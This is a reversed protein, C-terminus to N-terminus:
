KITALFADLVRNFEDPKDMHMWHSTGDIRRHGIGPVAHHLDYPQDSHPTFVALKPGPYRRLAPLPDYNLTAKIIALSADKPVRRMDDLVQTRVEPRAGALLKDWYGQTVKDFDAELTSWIQKAQDAPLKGPTGAVVLGAVRDPQAGAYAIAAAGGLSHGVLVFRKLGLGDAVAAIDAALSAIAYDNNAPATSEGHGRLELAVARRTVRLHALQASWHASSGAYSHVFVVPLAGTGSDDVRISGAPGPISKLTM